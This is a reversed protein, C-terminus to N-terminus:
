RTLCPVVEWIITLLMGIAVGLGLGIALVIRIAKSGDPLNSFM